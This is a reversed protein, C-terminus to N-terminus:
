SIDPPVAAGLLEFARRQAPTPTTLKEIAQGAFTITQRDLTALHTLLDRYRYVPLGDGNRKAADKAKAQPSRQAPAVPDAPAPIHQDTFTLEALAARLHWTLYCALMCILVHGRVRGPLYHHIPRLDLDDAKTIRFDREVHKLNKYAAVAGAADLIGGPVSTRIVYIGDLAAEATIKEEDRRWTLQGPGIDPIFHKAVKRKNIVKGVRIGIKDPDKLRGATVSRRIKALEAETGALLEARTRARDAELVPNHCCVLREGPYDPHTIEAFNCTDFLSMQLPGGDDALKKVAPAKLATIWDMGELKRLDDIRTGTIMGRDGAMILREIGFDTRVRTIATKFSEPDSTNGAFVEVAVPRGHPDTLLGYEIQRRGRKGDRSHGFAALECCSGEVWSSSLDFM